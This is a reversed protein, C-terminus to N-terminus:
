KRKKNTNNGMKRNKRQQQSVFLYGRQTRWCFSVQDAGKLIFVGGGGGGGGGGGEGLGRGEDEANGKRIILGM